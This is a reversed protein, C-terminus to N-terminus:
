PREDSGADRPAVRPEGDYDTRLAYPGGDQVVHDDPTGGSKGEKLHFDMSADPRGDVYPPASGGLNASGRGCAGSKWVNYAYVIGTRCFASPVADPDIGFINGIVHVGSYTGAEWAFGEGDAFSNFRVRVGELPYATAGIVLPHSESSGFWNNQIVLNTSPANPQLFIAYLECSWFRNREWTINTGGRFFACEFHDGSGDILDFDHIDNDRIRINRNDPCHRCSTVKEASSFADLKVNYRCPADGSASTCPGWDSNEVIVNQSGRIYFAGGDFGRVTVDKVGEYTAVLGPVTFGEVTLHGPAASEVASEGLSLGDTITVIEDPATTLTVRRSCRDKAGDNRTLTQAEYVGAKVLISDGCAAVDWSGDFTGCAAADAASDYAVPTEFRRCTGGDPDVWVQASAHRGSPADDVAPDATTRVTLWLTGAVAGTLALATVLAPIRGRMLRMRASLRRSDPPLRCCPEAARLVAPLRGVEAGVDSRPGGSEPGRARQSRM